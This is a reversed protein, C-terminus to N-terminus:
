LKSASPYIKGDVWILHPNGKAKRAERLFSDKRGKTIGGNEIVLYIGLGANEAKQYTPLQKKFGKTLNKNSTLKVEVLVKKLGLSVKFDVPGRGANSEPSLDLNNAICYSSAIGFFLKQSASEYKPQMGDDYLLTNLGNNEILNKFHHCIKKVLEFIDGPTPNKSLFLQLPHSKAYNRSVEHWVVEGLPDDEFDYPKSSKEAYGDLIEELMKPDRLLHDRFKAKENKNGLNKWSTGIVENIQDRLDQNQSAILGIDSRDLAIPLDRLIDKPILIIGRGSFPNKPLSPDLNGLKNKFKAELPVNFTHCIRQTFEILRSVIITATMDSIRDPGVGEQFLGILEFIRPNSVGKKIIKGATDLLDRRIEPGMGSGSDSKSYGISLENLEPFMLLRDAKKWFIDGEYDSSQLALLVDSFYNKLDDFSNKLEICTSTKLLNPDIFLNTDYGLIPDFVGLRSFEDSNIQYFDTFSQIM